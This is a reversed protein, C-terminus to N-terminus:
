SWRYCGQLDDSSGDITAMSGRPSPTNPVRELEIWHKFKALFHNIWYEIWYQKAWSEIWFIIWNLFFDASEIWFIIWNMQWPIMSVPRIGLIWEILFGPYRGGSDELPPQRTMMAPCLTKKQLSIGRGRWSLHFRDRGRVKWSCMWWRRRVRIGTEM